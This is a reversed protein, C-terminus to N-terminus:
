VPAPLLPHDPAQSPVPRSRQRVHRGAVPRPVRVRGVVSLVGHAGYHAVPDGSLVFVHQRVRRVGQGADARSAARVGREAAAGAPGAVGPRALRGRTRRGPARDGPRLQLRPCIGDAGKRGRKMCYAFPEEGSVMRRADEYEGCLFALKSIGVADAKFGTLYVVGTGYETHYPNRAYLVGDKEEIRIMRDDKHFTQGLVLDAGYCFSVEAPEGASNEAEICITKCQEGPPVFVTTRVRVDGAACVYEAYGRYFAASAGAIVDYIEGKYKMHLKEGYNDSVADNYWPTIRFQSANLAYTYGLSSDSVVTGFRYNSLINCWPPRTPFAQKDTVAFGDEVFGGCVTPYRIQLGTEAAPAPLAPVAARDRECHEPTRERKYDVVYSSATYFLAEDEASQLNCLIIGGRAAAYKELGYQRLVEQIGTHVPRDYQGGEEYLLVLECAIHKHKLLHFVKLYPIIKPVDEAEYIRVLLIPDDGSVGYKWLDAQTKECAAARDVPTEALRYILRPLVARELQLETETMDCEALM